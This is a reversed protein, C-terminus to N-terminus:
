NKPNVIVPTEDKIKIWTNGKDGSMYLAKDKSKYRMDVEEFGLSKMANFVMDLFAHWLEDSPLYNRDAAWRLYAKYMIEHYPNDFSPTITKTLGVDKVLILNDKSKGICVCKEAESYGIYALNTIGNDKAASMVMECFAKFIRKDSPDYGRANAWPLFVNWVKKETKTGTM